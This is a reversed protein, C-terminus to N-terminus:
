AERRKLIVLTLDDSQAVGAAHAEVAALIAARIEAVSGDASRELVALLREEGFLNEDSEPDDVPGEAETIGDTFLILLDGPHLAVTEQEFAVGAIMGLLLGGRELREIRGGARRLIPPNHGANTATFTARQRDLLGYFFTAFM